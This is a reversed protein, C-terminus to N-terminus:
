PEPRFLFFYDPKYFRGDRDSSLPKSWVGLDPDNYRFNQFRKVSRAGDRACWFSKKRQKLGVLRLLSREFANGKKITTRKMRDVFVLEFHYIVYFQSEGLLPAFSETGLEAVRTLLPPGSLLNVMGGNVILHVDGQIWGSPLSPYHVEHVKQRLQDHSGALCAGTFLLIALASRFAM